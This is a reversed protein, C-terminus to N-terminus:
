VRRGRSVCSRSTPRCSPLPRAPRRPNVPRPSPRALPRVTASLRDRSRSGRRLARWRPRSPLRGPGQQARVSAGGAAMVIILDSRRVAHRRGRTPREKRPPEDSDEQRVRPRPDDHKLGRLPPRVSPTDRDPQVSTWHVFRNFIRFEFNLSRLCEVCRSECANPIKLKDDPIAEELFGSGPADARSLWTSCRRPPGRQARPGGTRIGPGYGGSVAPPRRASRSRRTARTGALPGHRRARGPRNGRGPGPQSEHAPGHAAPGGSRRDATGAGRSRSSRPDRDGAGAAHQPERGAAHRVPPLETIPGGAAAPNMMVPATGPPPVNGM